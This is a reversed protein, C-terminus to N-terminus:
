GSNRIVFMVSIYVCIFLIFCKVATRLFFLTRGSSLYLVYNVHTTYGGPGQRHTRFINSAVAKHLFPRVIESPGIHVIKKLFRDESALNTCQRYLFYCYFFCWTNRNLFIYDHWCLSPNTKFNSMVKYYLKQWNVLIEVLSSFTEKSSEKHTAPMVISILKIREPCWVPENEELLYSAHKSCRIAFWAHGIILIKDTNLCVVAICM